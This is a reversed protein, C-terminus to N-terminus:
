GLHFHVIDRDIGKFFLSLSVVRTFILFYQEATFIAPESGTKSSPIGIRECIRM